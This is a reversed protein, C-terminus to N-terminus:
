RLYVWLIRPQPFNVKSVELAKLLILVKSTWKKNSYTTLSSHSMPVLSKTAISDPISTLSKQNLSCSMWAWKGKLIELRPSILSRAQSHSRLSPLGILVPRQPNTPKEKNRLKSARIGLLCHHISKHHRISWRSAAKTKVKLCTKSKFIKPRRVVTSRKFHHLIILKFRCLEM